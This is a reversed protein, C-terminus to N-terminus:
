ERGGERGEVKVEEKGRYRDAARKLEWWPWRMEGVGVGRGIDGKSNVKM